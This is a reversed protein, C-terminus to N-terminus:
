PALEDLHTAHERPQLGLSGQGPIPQRTAGYMAMVQHVAPNIETKGDVRPQGVSDFSGVTVISEHRDHFEYAEVGRTRLAVTLRIWCWGM